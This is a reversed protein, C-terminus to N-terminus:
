PINRRPNEENNKKNDCKGYKYFKILFCPFLGDPRDPRKIPFKMDGYDRSGDRPCSIQLEYEIKPLKSKLESVVNDALIKLDIDADQTRYENDIDGFKFFHIHDPMNLNIPILHIAIHRTLRISEEIVNQPEPVHELVHSTFCTDFSEDPFPQHAGDAVLVELRYKNWLEKQVETEAFDTGIIQIHSMQTRIRHEMVGTGCGISLIKNGYITAILDNGHIISVPNESIGAEMNLFYEDDYDEKTFKVKEQYRYPGGRDANRLLETAAQKTCWSKTDPSGVRRLNRLLKTIRLNM